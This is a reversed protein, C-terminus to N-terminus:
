KVIKEASFFSRMYFIEQTVSKQSWPKPKKTMKSNKPRISNSPNDFHGFTHFANRLCKRKVGFGWFQVFGLKHKKPNTQTKTGHKIKLTSTVNIGGM